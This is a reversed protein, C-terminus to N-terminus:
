KMSKKVQTTQSAILFVLVAIVLIILVVRFINGFSWKGIKVDQSTEKLKKKIIFRSTKEKQRFSNKKKSSVNNEAILSKRKGVEEQDGDMYGYSSIARSRRGSYGPNSNTSSLNNRFGAKKKKKKGRRGGGRSSGGGGESTEDELSFSESDNVSILNGDPNHAKNVGGRKRSRKGSKGTSSESSQSSASQPTEM